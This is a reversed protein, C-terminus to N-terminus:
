DGACPSGAAQAELYRRLEQMVRGHEVWDGRQLAAEAARLLALARESPKGGATGPAGTGAAGGAATREAARSAGPAPEFVPPQELATVDAEAGVLRLLTSELDPGMEIRDAHALIVRKLEPLAGKEAQLYLPEVYLLTRAIPLVLLNGRIVNSGRQSWLTLLQSISPDQDIRAEIQRPGYVLEQKPFLYVQREGLHEGDCRAVLWAIMNDKRAPTFPLMLVMEPGAGGALRMMTYYPEVTEERGGKSEVPLSWLDERNYFVQADTMHYTAYIEAQVRFLDEPYRLHARLGAPMAALPQFLGPFVAAHARLLPEDPQMAYFTV